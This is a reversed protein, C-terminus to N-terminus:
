YTFKTNMFRSSDYLAEAVRIKFLLNEDHIGGRIIEVSTGDEKLNALEVLIKQLNNILQTSRRDMPQQRVYRTERLLERSARREVTLDLPQGQPPKTNVIGVLLTKSKRLYEGVRNSEQAVQIPQEPELGDATPNTPLTRLHWGVVAIGILALAGSLAAILRPHFLLSSEIIEWLTPRTAKRQGNNGDLKQEVGSAFTQWFEPTREESPEGSVRPLLTVTSRLSEVESACSSCSALHTEVKTREESSLEEGLYEYLM